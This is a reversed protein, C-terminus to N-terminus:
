FLSDQKKKLNRMEMEKKIFKISWFNFLKDNEYLEDLEFGIIIYKDIKGTKIHRFGYVFIEKNEPVDENKM